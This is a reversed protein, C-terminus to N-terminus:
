VFQEVSLGNKAIIEVVDDVLYRQSVQFSRKLANKSNKTFLQINLNRNKELSTSVSKLFKHMSALL